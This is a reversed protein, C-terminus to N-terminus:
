KQMGEDLLAALDKQWKGWDFEPNGVSQIAVVLMMAIMEGRTLFPVSNM